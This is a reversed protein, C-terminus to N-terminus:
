GGALGKARDNGNYAAGNIEDTLTYRNNTHEPNAKAWEDALAQLQRERGNFVRANDGTHIADIRSQEQTQWEYAVADIGRQALDGVGATQQM